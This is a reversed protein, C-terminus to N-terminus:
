YIEAYCSTLCGCCKGNLGDNISCQYVPSNLIEKLSMKNLNGASQGKWCPYISGDVTIACSNQPIHCGDDPVLHKGLFYDPFKSLFNPSPMKDGMTKSYAIIKEIEQSLDSMLETEINFENQRIVQNKKTLMLSEFPNITINRIGVDELLFKCFPLIHHYNYKSLTIGVTTFAQSQERHKEFYKIASLTKQYNGNGRIKDNIEEPGELSISVAKLGNKILQQAEEKGILVGNTMLHVKLGHFSAFGIIEYIEKRTMPEGGSLELKDAGLEKIEVIVSKIKDLSMMKSYFNQIRYDCIRCRLNCLKTVLFSVRSFQDQYESKNM